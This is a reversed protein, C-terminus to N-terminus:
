KTLLWSQALSLLAQRDNPVEEDFVAELLRQLLAGIQTGEAGLAAVDGGRVALDKLGLCSEETLIKELLAGATEVRERLEPKAAAFLQLSLRAQVGGEAAIRRRLLPATDPLPLALSECLRVACLRTDNDARLRRLAADAASANRLLAAFRLAFDAPLACLAPLRSRLAEPSGTEPLLFFLVDSFQAMIESAHPACLIGKLETCIREASVRALLEKGTHVAEATREEVTFGYRAAFRLARLIRLADEGFRQEPEGVCRLLGRALDDRGGFPDIIEGSGDWAMANCTFDRRALDEELSRTFAVSEPHRGDLYVGDTRYTTIEVADGGLLVTVTGHQIGTEICRLDSFVAETERPLASTCVDWDGPKRGLLSDRVCGGVVYAEYGASRLRRLIESVNGPIVM